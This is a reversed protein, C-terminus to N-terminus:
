WLLTARPVSVMPCVYSPGRCYQAGLCNNLLLPGPGPLSTPTDLIQLLTEKGRKGAGRYGGFCGPIQFHICAVNREGMKGTKYQRRVFHGNPDNPGLQPDQGWEKSLEFGQQPGSAMDTFPSFERPRGACPDSPPCSPFPPM